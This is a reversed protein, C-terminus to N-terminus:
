GTLSVEVLGGRSGGVYLTHGTPDVALSDVGRKGLDGRYRRWTAGADNSVFLGNDGGAYVTEPAQPDVALANVSATQFGADLARWTVGGNTTKLLGAHTRAYMTKPNAPDLALLSATSDLVLSEWTAGGNSSKFVGNAVAYVTRADLPDIALMSIMPLPIGTGYPELGGWTAGGDTSKFVFTPYALGDGIAFDGNERTGAYLTNADHPDVVLASIESTDSIPPPELRRWSEGGNTTTFIDIGDAVVFARERKQPDVALAALNLPLGESAPRWGGRARKYFGQSSILAYASTRSTAALDEVRAGSMGTTSLKWSRGADTSTLVGAGTAAYLRASNQPDLALRSVGNRGERGLDLARWTRGGNTSKHVGSSTAAYLTTTREPDIQVGSISGALGSARWTKGGNSTKLLGDHTGAYLIQAHGPDVALASVAYGSLGAKHWTRGGNTSVSIGGARAVSSAYITDPDSPDLVVADVSHPALRQWSAGGNTTKRLRLTWGGAYVTDSDRPDVALSYIYGEILRHRRGAATHKGLLGGNAARWSAGGDTSKFVGGGTGAYVADPDGPAVALADVRSGSAPITLPRWSRGGNASKFVGARAVGAFVDGNPAVALAWVSGGEIGPALKAAPQRPGSPAAPADEGVVKSRTSGGNDFGFYGILVAAAIALASAGYVARRRRARRRAEEILAELAEVDPPEDARTPRSPRPTLVSV